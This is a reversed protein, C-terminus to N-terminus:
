NVESHAAPPVVICTSLEFTKGEPAPGTFNVAEGIETFGLKKFIAVDHESSAIQTTVVRGQAAAQKKVVDVLARAVGQRQYAPATALEQLYWSAFREEPSFQGSMLRVSEPLFSMWWEKVEDRLKPFFSNLIPVAAEVNPTDFPHAQEPPHWVAVGVIDKSDNEAVYVQGANLGATICMMHFDGFLSADGGTVISTFEHDKYADSFLAKTAEVEEETLETVRRISLSLPAM